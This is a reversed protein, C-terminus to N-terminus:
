KVVKASWTLDIDESTKNEWMLCYDEKAKTPQFRDAEGTTKNRKVPYYVSDGVHFHINFNVPKTTTFQYELKQASTVALCKEFMKGAKIVTPKAEAKADAPKQALVPLAACLLTGILAGWFGFGSERSM